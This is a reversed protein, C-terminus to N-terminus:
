SLRTGESILQFVATETKGTAMGPWVFNTQFRDFLADHPGGDPHLPGHQLFHLGDLLGAEFADLHHAVHVLVFDQARADATPLNARKDAHTIADVPTPANTKSKRAPM